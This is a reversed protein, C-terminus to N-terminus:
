NILVKFMNFADFSSKNAGNIIKKGFLIMLLNLILIYM